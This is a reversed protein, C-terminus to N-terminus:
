QNSNMMGRLMTGMMGAFGSPQPPQINFYMQGIRQLQNAFSDDRSLQPQYADCIRKFLPAATADLTVIELLLQCFHALPPTDNSLISQKQDYVTVDIWNALKVFHQRFTVADKLNQSLLYRLVARTMVLAIESLLTEKTAYQYLVEACGKPDDSHTFVKQALKFDKADAAAHALLTNVKPNGNQSYTKMTWAQASKLFRLRERIGEDNLNREVQDPDNFKECISIIVSQINADNAIVQHDNCHKIALLGLASGAQPQGKSLLTCAGSVLIDLAKSLDEASADKKQTLRHHMMRVAQEAGYYDDNKISSDYRKQLGKLSAM